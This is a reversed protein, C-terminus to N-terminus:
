APTPVASLAARLDELRFPKSVYDDMGVALLRDRDGELANATLAVIRPQRGGRARIAETAAIGDVRPMHVDMLIVDYATAASADLAGQGDEAVDAVVGLRGLMSVAVMRNVADDEALLVTLATVDAVSEQRPSPELGPAGDACVHVPVTLTFTSGEGPTSTVALGGGLRAAIRTSIALGLGTGGHTRTTSTDGQVFPDFIRAQRDRAIGIGTDHVTVVLRGAAPEDPSSEFSASVDVGGVETFKLGNGVLNILVQRLRTVDTCVLPPVAPDVRCSLGVGSRAAVPALMASVDDLVGRIEAPASELELTDADLASFDLIDNVLSLLHRGSQHATTVYDRQEDALATDLLLETLGLVANLPTRIEHSMSALFQAKARATEEAVEKAAVLAEETLRRKTVDTQVAVFGTVSGDDGVIPRVDLAIWYPVGDRTYNLVECTFERREEVCARMHDVTAPDTDPGQLLHGPVRGVVEDLGYGTRRIFADNVWEARGDPDTIVVPNDTTQVAVSHRQLEARAAKLREAAVIQQRRALLLVRVTGAVLAVFSLTSVGLVVLLARTGSVLEDTAGNAASAQVKRTIEADSVLQNYGLELDRIRGVLATPAPLAVGPTGAAVRTRVLPEVRATWTEALARSRALLGANGLTQVQYDLTGEQIRQAALARRLELQDAPTGPAVVASELRLLERQAQSLTRVNGDVLNQTLRVNDSLALTSRTVMVGLVVTTVLTLLAPVVLALLTGWRVRPPRTRAM